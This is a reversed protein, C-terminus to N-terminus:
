GEGTRAGELAVIQARLRDVEARVRPPLAEPARLAEMGARVGPPM